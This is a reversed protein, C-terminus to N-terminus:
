ALEDPAQYGLLSKPFTLQRRAFHSVANSNSRQNADTYAVFTRQDVNQLERLMRIGQTDFGREELDRLWQHPYDERVRGILGANANSEWLALGGAAYLCVEM